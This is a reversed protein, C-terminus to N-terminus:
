ISVVDILAPDDFGLGLKAATNIYIPERGAEKLSPM